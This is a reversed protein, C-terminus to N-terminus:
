KTIRKLIFRVILYWFLIKGGTSPSMMGSYITLLFFGTMFLDTARVIDKMNEGSESTYM